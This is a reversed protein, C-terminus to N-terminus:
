PRVGNVGIGTTAVLFWFFQVVVNLFVATCNRPDMVICDISIHWDKDLSLHKNIHRSWATL